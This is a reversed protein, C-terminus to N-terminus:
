DGTLRDRVKKGGRREVCLRLVCCDVRMRACARLVRACVCDCVAATVCMCDGRVGKRICEGASVPYGGLFHANQFSLQVRGTAIRLHNGAQQLSSASPTEASPVRGRTLMLPTSTTRRASRVHVAVVILINSFLTRSVPTSTHHLHLPPPPHPPLLPPPAGKTTNGLTQAKFADAEDPNWHSLAM